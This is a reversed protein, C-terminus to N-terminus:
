VGRKSAGGGGWVCVCVCSCVDCRCPVGASAMEEQEESVEGEGAYSDGDRISGVRRWWVGAHLGLVAMEEQSDLVKADALTINSVVVPAESPEDSDQQHACVYVLELCKADM